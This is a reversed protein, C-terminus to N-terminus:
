MNASLYKGLLGFQNLAINWSDTGNELLRYMCDNGITHNIFKIKSTNQAYRHEYLSDVVATMASIINIGYGFSYPQNEGIIKNEIAILPRPLSNRIHQYMKIFQRKGQDTNMNTIMFPRIFFFFDKELVECALIATNYIHYLALSYHIKNQYFSEMCRARIQEIIEHISTTVNKGINNVIFEEPSQLYNTKDRQIKSLLSVFTCVPNRSNLSSYSIIIKDLVDLTETLNYFRIIEDFFSYPYFPRSKIISINDALDNQFCFEDISACLFEDIAGISLSFQQSDILDDTHVKFYSRGGKVLGGNFQCSLNQTAISMKKIHLRKGPSNEVEISLKRNVKDIDNIRKIDSLYKCLYQCSQYNNRNIPFASIGELSLLNTVSIVRDIFSLVFGRIGEFTTINVLYHYYEHMFVAQETTLITDNFVDLNDLDFSKDLNIYFNNLVYSVKNLDMCNGM